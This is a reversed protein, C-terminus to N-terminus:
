PDKTENQNGGNKEALVAQNVVSVYPGRTQGLVAEPPAQNKLSLVPGAAVDNTLGPDVQNLLSVTPGAANTNTIMPDIQNFLSIVLGITDFNTQIPSTENLLTVVAGLAVRSQGVPDTQNFLTISQSVVLGGSLSPPLSGADLPSSGAEIEDPDNFGDGDTDRNHPDTGHILLEDVDLLGDGDNDEQGDLIGDGDSDALVPNFQTLVEQLNTLGDNDFDEDGDLIGDGDSDVLDPDLGLDAELDDPIGDGDRDQGVDYVRFAWAHSSALRNGALDTLDTTVGARYYGPLLGEDLELFVAVLEERWQITGSVPIDDTTGHLEDAGAEALSFSSPTLSIPDLPENFFAAITAINGLNSGDSPSASTLRPPTGDPVLAVDQLESWTANGGTDSVRARLTFGTRGDLRPTIFRFEFPFTGDTFAKVGDLYFEVNRVQVDDGVRAIVRVLKGEEAGSSGWSTTLSITPPINLIDFPLYNIVQLGQDSDAVYALGNVLVVDAALGPTEFTTQFVDTLTPDGVDYLHIHHPGDNTSNPSMAAIGLGNGNTVIKKWGRQSTNGAAILDPNAPDSIDFTNYGSTHVVYLLEGAAFLRLPRNGAGISGPSAISGVARLEGDVLSVTHLRGPEILYLYDGGVTVDHFRANIRINDLVTGSPLDVKSIQNFGAVYALPGTTTVAKTAGGLSTQPIQHLITAAPPDILDFIALGAPGDAVAVYRGSAHASTSEGPTAVQSIVVPAMANFVNFVTIGRNRESVLLLDNVAHVHIALGQTDTSGIIGTTAILGDLPNLGQFVESGDDLGDGDTDPNAANTGIIYEAEDHLGDGDSDPTFPNRFGVRPITFGAGNGPTTFEKQGVRLTLLNLLWVRYTSGPQLILDRGPIGRSDNLGRAVIRGDQKDEVLYAFDGSQAMLSNPYTFLLLKFILFCGFRKM